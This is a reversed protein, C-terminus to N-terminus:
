CVATSQIGGMSGLLIKLGWLLSDSFSSAFHSCFCDLTSFNDGLFLSFPLSCDELDHPSARLIWLVALICFTSTSSTWGTEAIVRWQGGRDLCFPAIAFPCRTVRGSSETGGRLSSSWPLCGLAFCATNLGCNIFPQYHERVCAGGALVVLSRPFAMSLLFIWAVTWVRNEQSLSTVHSLGRM